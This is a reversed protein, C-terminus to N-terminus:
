SEFVSLHGLQVKNQNNRVQPMKLIDQNLNRFYHTKKRRNKM